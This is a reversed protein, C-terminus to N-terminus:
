ASVAARQRQHHARQRTRWGCAPSCYRQHPAQTPFDQRCAPNACVLWRYPLREYEYAVNVLRPM